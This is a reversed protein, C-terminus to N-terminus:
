GLGTKGHMDGFFGTQPNWYEVFKMNHAESFTDTNGNDNEDICNFLEDNFFFTVNM